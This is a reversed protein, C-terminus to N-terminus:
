LLIFHKSFKCYVIVGNLLTLKVVSVALEKSLLELEEDADEIATEKAHLQIYPIVCHSHVCHTISVYDTRRKSLTYNDTDMAVLM